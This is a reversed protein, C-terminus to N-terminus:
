KGPSPLEASFDTPADHDEFPHIRSLSKQDGSSLTGWPAPAPFDATGKKIFVEDIINGGPDRLLVTEASNRLSFPLGYRSAGCAYAKKFGTESNGIVLFVGSGITINGFTYPTCDADGNTITVGELDCENTGANFLEIFEGSPEEAPDYMIESIRLNSYDPLPKVTVSASDSFDRYKASIKATGASLATIHLGQISINVSDSSLIIEGEPVISRTGDPNLRYIAFSTGSQERLFVTKPYMFIGTEDSSSNTAEHYHEPIGCHMVAAIACLIFSKKM